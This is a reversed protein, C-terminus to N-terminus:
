KLFHEFTKWGDLENAKLVRKGDKGFLSLPANNKTLVANVKAMGMTNLKRAAMPTVYFNILDVLNSNPVVQGGIIVQMKEDWEIGFRKM